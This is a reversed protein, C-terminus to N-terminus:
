QNILHPYHQQVVEYIQQGITEGDMINEIPILYQGQKPDLSVVDLLKKSIAFIDAWDPFGG